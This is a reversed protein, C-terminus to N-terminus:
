LELYGIERWIKMTYPDILLLNPITILLWVVISLPLNGWNFPLHYVAALSITAIFLILAIAPSFLGVAKRAYFHSWRDSLRGHAEPNSKIDRSFMCIETFATLFAAKAAEDLQNLISTNPQTPLTKEEEIIISELIDHVRRHHKRSRYYNVVLHHEWYWLPVSILFVASVAALSVSLNGFGSSEIFPLAVPLTIISYNILTALGAIDFRLFRYEAPM